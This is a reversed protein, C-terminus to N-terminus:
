ALRLNSPLNQNTREPEWSLLTRLYLSFSCIVDTRQQAQLLEVEQKCINCIHIILHIFPPLIRGRVIKFLFLFSLEKCVVCKPQNNKQNISKKRLYCMHHFWAGYTRISNIKIVGALFLYSVPFLFMEIRVGLCVQKFPIRNRKRM